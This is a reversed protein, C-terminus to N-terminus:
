PSGRTEGLGKVRRTGVGETQGFLCHEWFHVHGFRGEDVAHVDVNHKGTRVGLQAVKHETFEAEEGLRFGALLLFGSIRGRRFPIGMALLRTKARM